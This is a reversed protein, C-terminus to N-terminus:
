QKPPELLFQKRESENSLSIIFAEYMTKKDRMVVYPLFVTALDAQEAEILAMQAKIWDYLIRWAVNVAHADTLYKKATTQKALIKKVGRYNAPLKFNIDVGNINIVFEVGTIVGHDYDKIITKAGKTSLLREIDGVTKHSDIGSTYNLIPM